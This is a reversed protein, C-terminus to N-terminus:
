LRGLLLQGSDVVVVQGTVTPIKVLMWVAEAVDEPSVVRGLVTYRKAFEEEDMGLVKLLSDGMKTKVVGPAVANVRIRPALEAALAQTLNIVAAKAASYISLGVFPRIGAISAINIISGEGMVKAAEQSCYIVSKLSVELQKEILRDDANLFLSFLGLGANNVLVDLGGFNEVAANVVQRCGGGGRTAVDALVVVGSGGAERVFRLTEEAEERGRKANVVVNWGERAFRVAVARGIGRGSGTVVVTPM